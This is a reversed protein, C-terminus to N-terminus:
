FLKYRKYQVSTHKNPFFKYNYDILKGPTFQQANLCSLWEAMNIRRDNNVDCYKPFKKGCQRLHPYYAVMSRFNKWEKRELM